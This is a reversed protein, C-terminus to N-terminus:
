FIYTHHQLMKKLRIKKVHKQQLVPINQMYVLILVKLITCIPVMFSSLIFVLREKAAVLDNDEQVPLFVWTVGLYHFGLIFSPFLFHSLKYESLCLGSSIDLKLKLARLSISVLHLREMNFFTFNACLQVHIKEQKEAALSLVIITMIISIIIIIIFFCCYYYLLM